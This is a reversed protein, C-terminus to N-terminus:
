ASAANLFPREERFAEIDGIMRAIIAVRTEQTISASHPTLVV